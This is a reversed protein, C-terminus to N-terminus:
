KEASFLNIKKSILDLAVLSNRHDPHQSLIENLLKVAKDREGKAFYAMAINYQIEYNDNQLVYMRNLHILAKDYDKMKLYLVSLNNELVPSNSMYKEAQLLNFEAESYKNIRVDLIGLSQLTKANEPDEKISHQYWKEADLNNKSRENIEGLLQYAESRIRCDSRTEGKSLSHIRLLYVSAEPDNGDNILVRAYRLGAEFDDPLKKLLYKLQERAEAIRGATLYLSALQRNLSAPSYIGYRTATELHYLADNLLPGISSAQQINEKSSSAVIRKYALDGAYAHYHVFGSHVTLILVM